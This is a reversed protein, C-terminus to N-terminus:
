PLVIFESASPDIMGGAASDVDVETLINYGTKEDWIGDNAFQIAYRPDNRL